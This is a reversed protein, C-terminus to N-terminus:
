LPEWHYQTQAPLWYVLGQRLFQGECFALCIRSWIIVMGNRPHLPKLKRLQSPQHQKKRPKSRSKCSGTIILENKKLNWKKNLTKIFACRLEIQPLCFASELCIAPAYPSVGYPNKREEWQVLACSSSFIRPDTWSCYVLHGWAVAGPITSPHFGPGALVRSSHIGPSISYTHLLLLTPSLVWVTSCKHQVLSCGWHSHEQWEGAQKPNSKSLNRWTSPLCLMSQSQELDVCNRLSQSMLVSSSFQWKHQIGQTKQNGMWMGSELSPGPHHEWPSHM